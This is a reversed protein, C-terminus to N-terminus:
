QAALDQLYKRFRGTNFNTTGVHKSVVNGKKDIIFTAPISPVELLEPLPGGLTYVPFTFEEKTIYDKVKGELGPRDISLMVFAIQEKPIDAYLKEIGPMEARCPGCWTAWLNLFIVKGKLDNISKTQGNIDRVTFNYDFTEATASPNEPKFDRVGTMLVASQTAAMVYTLMGTYRLVLLILIAGAVPKLLNVARVLLQKQNTKLM